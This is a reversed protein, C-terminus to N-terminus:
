PLRELGQVINGVKIVLLWANCYIVILRRCHLFLIKNLVMKITKLKDIYNM